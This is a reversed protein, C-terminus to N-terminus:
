NVCGIRKVLSYDEEEEEENNAASIKLVKKIEMKINLIELMSMKELEESKELYSPDLKYILEIQKQKSQTM